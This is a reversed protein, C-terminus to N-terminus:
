YLFLESRKISATYNQSNQGNHKRATM